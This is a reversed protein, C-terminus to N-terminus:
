ATRLCSDDFVYGNMEPDEAEVLKRLERLHELSFEPASDFSNPLPKIISQLIDESFVEEELVNSYPVRVESPNPSKRNPDLVHPGLPFM